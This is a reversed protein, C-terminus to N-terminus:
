FETSVYDLPNIVHLNEARPSSEAPNVCATIERKFKVEFCM